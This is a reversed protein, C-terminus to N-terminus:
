RNDQGMYLYVRGEQGDRVTYSSAAILLDPIQDGNVDAFALNSGLRGKEQDGVVVWSPELSLGESSGLYLEAKGQGQLEGTFGASGVALDDFGDRDVDAVALGSGFWQAEGYGELIADPELPAGEFPGHYIWAAGADEATLDARDSGVVVDIHGDGNVDGTVIGDRELGAGPPLKWESLLDFYSDGAGGALLILGPGDVGRYGVLLDDFGDQNMDGGSVLAAGVGAEPRDLEFRWAHPLRLGSSSGAYLFVLGEESEGSSGFSAGVLADSFGDGEVDLAALTGGYSDGLENGSREWTPSVSLGDASGTFLTVKGPKKTPNFNVDAVLLDEQGDGNVDGACAVTQGRGAWPESGTTSWDPNSSLGNLSGYFGMALGSAPRSPLDVLPTSLFVDALDDGNVDCVTMSYGLSAQLNEGDAHWSPNLELPSSPPGEQALSVQPFLLVVLVPWSLVYSGAIRDM